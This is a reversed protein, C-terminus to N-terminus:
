HEYWQTIEHEIEKEAICASLNKKKCLASKLFRSETKSHNLNSLM